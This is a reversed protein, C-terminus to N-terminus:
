NSINIFTVISVKTWPEKNSKIYILGFRTTPKFRVNFVTM